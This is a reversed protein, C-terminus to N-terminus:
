REGALSALAAKLVQFCVKATHEDPSFGSVMQQYPHIYNRFDRLGHSFKKVDLKLLGVEFAVDIFQALTWEHLPKVRGDTNKPSAIARNFKEPKTQATGLLVAELVSGCMFIVCLSAGAKLAVRAEDLRQEVIVIVQPEIPLKHLNPIKFERGLFTDETENGSADRIKGGIRNVIEKSKDLIPKEVERNNLECDAEYSALLEALVPAVIQDAELEWFARMKKAKSTGYKQYRSSHIEVNYRSFFEGYTADSFDLVYGGSMGLIKELYRKDIDTLSSM